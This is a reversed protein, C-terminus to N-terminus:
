WGAAPAYIILAGDTPGVMVDVGEKEFVEDLLQIAKPRLGEKM